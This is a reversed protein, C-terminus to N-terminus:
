KPNFGLAERYTDGELIGWGKASTWKDDPRLASSTASDFSDVFELAEKRTLFRGDPTAFGVDSDPRTIVEDPLDAHTQGVKGSVVRGNGSRFAPVLKPATPRPGGPPLAMAALNGYGGFAQVPDIAQHLEGLLGLQAMDPPMAAMGRAPATVMDWMSPGTYQTSTQGQGRRITDM